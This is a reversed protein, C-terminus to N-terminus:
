SNEKREAEIKKMNQIYDNSVKNMQDCVNKVFADTMQQAELDTLQSHFLKEWFQKTQASVKYQPHYGPLKQDPPQVSDSM